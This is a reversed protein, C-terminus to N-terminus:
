RDEDAQRMACPGAHRRLAVSKFTGAAAAALEDLFKLDFAASCDYVQEHGKAESTRVSTRRHMVFKPLPASPCYRGLGVNHLRPPGRRAPPSGAVPRRWALSLGRTQRRPFSMFASKHVRRPPGSSRSIPFTASGTAPGSSAMTLTSAAASLKKSVSIM